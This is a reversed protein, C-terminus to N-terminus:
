YLTFLTIEHIVLLTYYCGSRTSPHPKHWIACKLQNLASVPNWCTIKLFCVKCHVLGCVLVIMAAHYQIHYFAERKPSLPRRGVVQLSPRTSSPAQRSFLYPAIWRPNSDWGRRLLLYGVQLIACTPKKTYQQSVLYKISQVAIL